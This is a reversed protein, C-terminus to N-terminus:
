IPKGRARRRSEFKSSYAVRLRESDQGDIVGYWVRNGTTVSKAVALSRMLETVSSKIDRWHQVLFIDAEEQFLRQLQDGNKGMRGPVLAGKQGPGKFGFAAAFRKGNMRVRTSYLDSKEGGWDKFQGPEGLIAQVGHKFQEESMSAPLSGAFKIKRVKTFSGIDDITIRNAKAGASPVSVMKPLTIVIKRKTPLRALKNPNGALSLIQRKHSHFFDIKEYATDNEKKTQRVLNLRALHGAAQLVRMRTLGTRKAIERVSKVRAKHHYIADFVERRSKSRGITKAAREIQEETNSLSDTVEFVNGM